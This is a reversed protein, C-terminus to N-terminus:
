YKRLLSSLKPKHSQTYLYLKLGVISGITTGITNLALDYPSSHRSPIYAQILEISISLTVGIAISTAIVPSFDIQRFDRVLLYYTLFIGFPIFGLTNIAMDVIASWGQNLYQTPMALPYISSINYNYPLTLGNAKLFNIPTNDFDYSRILKQNPSVSLAFYKLTGPWGNLRNTSNAFTLRAQRIRSLQAKFPSEVRTQGNITIYSGSVDFNMTLSVPNSASNQQRFQNIDLYIRTLGKSDSYDNGNMVIILNKWQGVLFQSDPNGDTISTIVMFRQPTKAPPKLTLTISFGKESMNKLLTHELFDETEAITYKAGNLGNENISITKLLAVDKPYCGAILIALLYAILLTFFARHSIRNLKYLCM